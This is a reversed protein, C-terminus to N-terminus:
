PKQCQPEPRPVTVARNESASSGESCRRPGAVCVVTACILGSAHNRAGGAQPGEREQFLVAVLSLLDAWLMVAEMEDLFYERRTKKGYRQFEAQQALSDAADTIQRWM